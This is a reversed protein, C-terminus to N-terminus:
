SAGRELWTGLVRFVIRAPDKVTHFHSVRSAPYVVRVPTQEIPWGARAARLIVEAEFAYGPSKMRLDLVDPLPYRRLGCQTDALRQGSFWSLFLNSVSNSFRNARPAGDRCLDRVGLVLTKASAPFQALRLVEDAPHQGDADATVVADFGAMVLAQFGTLLAAGKGRNTQHAVVCAGAAEAARRTEDTSGDDVLWVPITSECHKASAMIGRIVDPVTSMAQYAPILVAVNLARM